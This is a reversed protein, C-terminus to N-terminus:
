RENTAGELWRRGRKIASVLSVSVGYRAALDAQLAGGTLAARIARVDTEQLKAQGNRNGRNNVGRGDAYMQQINESQTGVRLHEINVCKPNNCLHLVVAGTPIFGGNDLIAWHHLPRRVGNRMVRAYGDREGKRGHDVCKSLV